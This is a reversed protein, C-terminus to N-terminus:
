VIGIVTTFVEAMLNMNLIVCNEIMDEQKRFDTADAYDFM